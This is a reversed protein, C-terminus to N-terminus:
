KRIVKTAEKGKVEIMLGSHNGDTELGNIQYYTAKQQESLENISTTDGSTANLLFRNEDFGKKATFEYASGAELKIVRGTECDKVTVPCDNRTCSLTYVGNVPAYFGLKVEGNGAPRENIAYRVNSSDLSYIQPAETSEFKSADVGVEYKESASNNIVVRTRDSNTGDTVTLDILLRPESNLSRARRASRRKRAASRHNPDDSQKKTERYNSDFDVGETGEPKQVFFAMFPYMSLDDDEPSLAEYSNTNPNWWTIPGDFGLDALEYYSLFPNGIFNWSADQTNSSVFQELINTWSQGDFSVNPVSITLTGAKSGQFIYGRGRELKEGKMDKWAGSGYMARWEGDYYRWVMQGNFMINECPVDFPFAFFYWRNGVIPINVNLMDINVNGGSESSSSDGGIITSGSGKGDSDIDVNGLDQSDDGEVILGSNSGLDADPNKIEGSEEDTEGEIRPTDPEEYLDEGDLYFYSYPENFNEIKQFQSWQTNWYYLSESTEPVHLTAQLYTNAAFTNQGISTPQITYTYVDKVTGPIAGDGIANIGAPIRIEALASCGEFAFGGISKLTPPMTVSTLKKCGYFCNSPVNELTPPLVVSELSSCGQFTNSGLGTIGKPLQATRLNSCGYFAYNSIIVNQSILEKPFNIAELNSCYRFAYVGISQITAPFDISQLSTCNEFASRGISQLSDPLKINVLNLDRFMNAGIINDETHCGTYYEYSSAVINADSLDLTRLNLMKNRLVIIDYSNISGSVKLNVVNLVMDRDSDANVKRLIDSDNERASVAVDYDILGDIVVKSANAEPVAQLYADYGEAPVCIVYDFVGITPPVSGEFHVVTTSPFANNGLSAVSPPIHASTIAACNRFANSGIYSITSPIVLENIEEGNIILHKAFYLPNSTAGEFYIKLYHEISEFEATTLRSCNNFANDGISTVSSPIVVSTLGDCSRFADRGISTVSSPIIVSILGCGNFAGIEIETVTTPISISKLEKCLSFVNAEIRTVSEPISVSTLGSCNYFASSGISTVSSPITVSTLGSGGYFASSVISTVTYEVENVTIKEPIIVEGVLASNRSVSATRQSTNLSYNIGDVVEASASLTGVLALLLFTIRKIM